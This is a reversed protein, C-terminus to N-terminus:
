KLENVPWGQLVIDDTKQQSLTTTSTMVRLVSQLTIRYTKTDGFVSLLNDAAFLQIKLLRTYRSSDRFRHRIGPAIMKINCVRYNRKDPTWSCSTNYVAIVVKAASAITAPFFFFSTRFTGNTNRRIEVSTLYRYVVNINYYHIKQMVVCASRCVIIERRPDDNGDTTTNPRVRGYTIIIRRRPCM